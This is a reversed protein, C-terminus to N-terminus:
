DGKWMFALTAAWVILTIFIVEDVVLEMVRLFITLIFSLAASGLIAKKADNSVAVFGMFFVLTLSILIVIGLLGDTMTNVGQLFGVLGTSGSSAVQTVNFTM